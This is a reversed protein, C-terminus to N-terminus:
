SPIACLLVRRYRYVVQFRYYTCQCHRSRRGIQIGVNHACSRLFKLHAEKPLHNAFGILVYPLSDITRSIIDTTAIQSTLRGRSTRRGAVCGDTFKRMRRSFMTGPIWSTLM